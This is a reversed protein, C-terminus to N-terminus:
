KDTYMKHPHLLFCFLHLLALDRNLLNNENVKVELQTGIQLPQLKPTQTHTYMLGFMHLTVSVHVTFLIDIM